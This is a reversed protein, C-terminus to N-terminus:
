DKCTVYVDPDVGIPTNAKRFADVSEQTQGCITTDKAPLTYPFHCEYCGDNKHCSSVFVAIAFLCLLRRVMMM